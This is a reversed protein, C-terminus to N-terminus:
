PWSELIHLAYDPNDDEWIVHKPCRKDMSRNKPKKGVHRKWWYAKCKPGSANKDANQRKLLPRRPSFVNKMRDSMKCPLGNADSDQRMGTMDVSVGHGRDPMKGALKDPMGVPTKDTMEM